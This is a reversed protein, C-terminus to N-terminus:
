QGAIGTPNQAKGALSGYWPAHYNSVGGNSNLIWYGGTAPDAALGAVPSTLHGLESGYSPANFNAVGGNSDVVWYGLGEPDAAIAAATVGAPLSGRQSGWWPAGYNAVGGNSNLAWYGGTVQDAAIAVATVGSSLQGRQSGYWSVGFDFIGGGPLQILYGPTLPIRWSTGNWVEDLTLEADGTFSGDGVTYTGAAVCSAASACSVGSLGTPYIDGPSNVPPVVQWTGGQWEEALPVASSTSTATFGAAMCWSGGVCSVADLSDSTGQAPAPLSLQQWATGNWRLAVADAGNIGGSSGVALCDQASPCSVGNLSPAVEPTQDPTPLERWSSGNWAVSYPLNSEDDPAGTGVAVCSTTATCSVATLTSNPGGINSVPLTRWTTGNWRETTNQNNGGFGVAM